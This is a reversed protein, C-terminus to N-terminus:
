PRVLPKGVFVTFIGDLTYRGCLHLVGGGPADVDGDIVAVSVL